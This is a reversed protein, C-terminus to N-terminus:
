GKNEKISLLMLEIAIDFNVNADLRKKAKDMAKIIDEIEEYGRKKAQASLFRYEDKFLLTNPDKTVKLMLVDRYWLQMLDICDNIELKHTSLHRVAEVVEYIEMEYQSLIEEVQNQQNYM